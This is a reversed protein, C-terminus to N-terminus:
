LRDALREASLDHARRHRDVALKRFDPVAAAADKAADIGRELRRPIMREHDIAGAHRVLQCQSRLGVIPEDHANRVCAERDVAQLKMGLADGGRVAMQDQLIEELERRGPIGLGAPARAHMLPAGAMSSKLASIALTALPAASLRSSDVCANSRIIDPSAVGECIPPRKIASRTRPSVTSSI